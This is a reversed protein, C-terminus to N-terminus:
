LLFRYEYYMSAHMYSRIYLVLRICICPLNSTRTVRGDDMAMVVCQDATSNPHITCTVTINYLESTVNPTILTVATNTVSSTVIYLHYLTVVNHIYSRIYSCVYTRVISLYLIHSSKPFSVMIDCKVNRSIGM